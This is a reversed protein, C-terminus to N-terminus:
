DIDMLDFRTLIKKKEKKLIINEVKVKSINYPCNIDGTCIVKNDGMIDGGTMTPETLISYDIFTSSKSYIIAM